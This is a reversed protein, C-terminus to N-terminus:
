PIKKKINNWFEVSDRCFQDQQKKMNLTVIQKGSQTPPISPVSRSNFSYCNDFSGHIEIYKRKESPRNVTGLEGKNVLDGHPPPFSKVDLTMLPSFFGNSQMATSAPVDDSVREALSAKVHVGGFVHFRNTKYGELVVDLKADGVTTECGMDMLAQRKAERSILPRLQIENSILLPNYYAAVFIEFAEGGARVWSQQPNSPSPAALFCRYIIHHWLDSPNADPCLTIAYMLSKSIADRKKPESVLQNNLYSRISHYQDDTVNELVVVVGKEIFQM